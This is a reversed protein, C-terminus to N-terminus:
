KKPRKKILDLKFNSNESSFEIIKSKNTIETRFGANRLAEELIQIIAEKELDPKREKTVKKRPNGSKAEHNIKNAKAKETLDNVVEDEEYGNDVLYMQIAEDRTIDLINMNKELEADPIQINKGNELKYTM